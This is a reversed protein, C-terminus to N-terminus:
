NCIIVLTWGIEETQLLQLENKLHASIHHLFEVSMVEHTTSDIHQKVGEQTCWDFLPARGTCLGKCEYGVDVSRM